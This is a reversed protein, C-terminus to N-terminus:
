PVIGIVEWELVGNGASLAGGSAGVTVTSPFGELRALGHLNLLTAFRAWTGDRTTIGPLGGYVMHWNDNPLDVRYWPNDTVKVVCSDETVANTLRIRLVSM